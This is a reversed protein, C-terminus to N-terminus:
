APDYTVTIDQGLTTVVTLGNLFAVNYDLVVQQQLITLPSAPSGIKTGSATLSDYITVTGLSILKNFIVKRLVGPGTKILYTGAATINFPNSGLVENNFNEVMDRGTASNVLGM